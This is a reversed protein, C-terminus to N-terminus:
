SCGGAMWSPNAARYEDEKHQLQDTGGAHKQNINQHRIIAIADKVGKNLQSFPAGDRNKKILAASTMVVTATM